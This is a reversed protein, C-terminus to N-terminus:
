SASTMFRLAALALEPWRSLQSEYVAVWDKFPRGKGSPDFPESDPLALALAHQQTGAGLKLALRGDKLCAFAKGDITLCRAGFMQGRVVGSGVLEDVLDDFTDDPNM